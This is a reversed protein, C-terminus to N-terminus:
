WAIQEVSLPHAQREVSVVRGSNMHVVIDALAAFNRNHTVMIMTFGEARHLDCLCSLVQRGTSEDLAGTPEDLFLAAPRKALARAISVRQQEGGSLASPYKRLHQRLGLSDILAEDVTGDALDAGMRINKQVTLEPLLYYQQFVFGVTARRFATLQKESLASLNVDGHRIEGVSPRELGSLVHLLTSKGSGSPGLIVTFSGDDIQLDIGQLIATQNTGNGYQMWVNEAKIM